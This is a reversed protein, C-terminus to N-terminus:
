LVLYGFIGLTVSGVLLTMEVTKGLASSPTDTNTAGPAGTTTESGGNGGTGTPSNGLQKSVESELLPFESTDLGPCAEQITILTVNNEGGNSLDQPDYKYIIERPISLYAYQQACTDDKCLAASNSTNFIPVPSDEPDENKLLCYKADGSKPNIPKLCKFHYASSVTYQVVEDYSLKVEEDDFFNGTTLGFYDLFEQGECGDGGRIWKRFSTLCEDTCIADLEAVSPFRGAFNSTVLRPDCNITANYATLCAPNTTINTPPTGLEDPLSLLNFSAFATPLFLLSLSLM